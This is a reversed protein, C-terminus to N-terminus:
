LEATDPCLLKFISGSNFGLGWMDYKKLAKFLFSFPMHPPVMNWPPSCSAALGLLRLVELEM